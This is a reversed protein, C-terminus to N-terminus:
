GAGCAPSTLSFVLHTVAGNGGPFGLYHGNCALDVAGSNGIVLSLQQADHFDKVSGAPLVEQLVTAGTGDTVSVWSPTSNMRLRVNVGAYAVAHNSLSPAASSATGTPGSGSQTSGLPNGSSATPSDSGTNIQHLVLGVALLAVVVALVSTLVKSPSRRRAGTMAVTTPLAVRTPEAVVPPLPAPRPRAPAAARAARASPAAPAARAPRKSQKRHRLWSSKATEAPLPIGLGPRAAARDAAANSGVRATGASRVQDQRRSAVVDGEEYPLPPVVQELRPELPSRKRAPAVSPVPSVAVPAGYVQNFQQVLPDPDRGLASAISRLHGRAYVAGGCAEFDGAEMSSILSARIRTRSSVDSVSWGLDARAAALLAGLARAGDTEAAV